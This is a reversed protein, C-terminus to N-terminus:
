SGLDLKGRDVITQSNRLWGRGSEGPASNRERQRASDSRVTIVPTQLKIVVHISARHLLKIHIHSDVTPYSYCLTYASNLLTPMKQYYNCLPPRFTYALRPWPARLCHRLGRGKWECIDREYPLKEQDWWDGGSGGGSHRWGGVDLSVLALDFLLHAGQM